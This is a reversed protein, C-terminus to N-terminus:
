RSPRVQRWLVIGTLGPFTAQLSFGTVIRCSPFYEAVPIARPNKDAVTGRWPAMGPFAEYPNRM